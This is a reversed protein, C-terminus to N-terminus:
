DNELFLIIKNYHKEMKEPILKQILCAFKTPNEFFRKKIDNSIKGGLALLCDKDLELINAIKIITNESVSLFVDTELRCIMSPSVGVMKAFKNLSINKKLREKKVVEGLSPIHQLM